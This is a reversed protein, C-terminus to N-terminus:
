GSSILVQGKKNRGRSEFVTHIGSDRLRSGIAFVKEECIAMVRICGRNLEGVTGM